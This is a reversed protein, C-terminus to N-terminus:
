VETHVKALDKILDEEVVCRGKVVRDRPCFMAQVFVSQPPSGISRQERADPPDPIM